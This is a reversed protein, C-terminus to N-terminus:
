TQPQAQSRFRYFIKNVEAMTIEPKAANAGQEAGYCGRLAALNFYFSCLELQSLHKRLLIRHKFFSSTDM